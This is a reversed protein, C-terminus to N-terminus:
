IRCYWAHKGYSFYLFDSHANAAHLKADDSQERTRSFRFGDFTEANPYINNDMHIAGIPTTISVGEPITVGNSCTYPKVVARLMIVVTLGFGSSSNSSGLSHHRFSEKIFSDLKWLKSLAEKDWGRGRTITSELEERLPQM